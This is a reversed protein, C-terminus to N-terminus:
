ALSLVAVTAVLPARRIGRFAFRTDKLLDELWRTGRVDRCEESVQAAGGLAIRALREAEARSAGVRLQREIEREQHDRLEDALESEVTNRRFIARLRYLLDSWM